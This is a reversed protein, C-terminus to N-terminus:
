IHADILVLYHDEYGELIQCQEEQWATEEKENAAIAWWGMKGREHWQGDPTILAYTWKGEALVQSVAAMNDAIEGASTERDNLWGDWRGGIVYWDWRSQPNYTSLPNNDEDFTEHRELFEQYGAEPTMQQLRQLQERCRDLDYHPERTELIRELHSIERELDAAAQDLDYCIYPEVQKNEDYPAMQVAIYGEARHLENPPILIGVTFHTM